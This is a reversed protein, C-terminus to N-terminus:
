LKGGHSIQNLCLVPIISNCTNVMAELQNISVCTNTLSCSMIPMGVKAELLNMSIELEQIRNSMHELKEECVSSFRNLFKATHTVFHNLFAVIRKQQIAEVQM